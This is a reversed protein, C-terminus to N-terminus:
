GSNIKFICIWRNLLFWISAMQWPRLYVHERDEKFLRGSFFVFCFVIFLLTTVSHPLGELSFWCPATTSFLLFSEKTNIQFGTQTLVLPTLLPWGLASGPLLLLRHWGWPLLHKPQQFFQHLSLETLPFLLPPGSLHPRWWARSTAPVHLTCKIGPPKLSNAHKRIM